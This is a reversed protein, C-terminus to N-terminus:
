KEEFFKGKLQPHYNNLINIYEALDSTDLLDRTGGWRAEYNGNYACLGDSNDADVYDIIKDPNINEQQCIVIIYDAFEDYNLKSIEHWKKM